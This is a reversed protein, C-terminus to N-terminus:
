RSPPPDVDDLTARLLAAAAWRKVEASEARSLGCSVETILEAEIGVCMSLAAVLRRMATAPIRDALPQLAATLYRVRQSDERPADPYSDILLLFARMGTRLAHEHKTTFAHDARIVSDLREAADGAVEAAAHVQQRDPGVTASLVIEAYMLEQSPFYRYATSRSIGAVEAVEAVTPSRGAAVLGAAAAKLTNRTRLKQGTRGGAEYGVVEAGREGKVAAPDYM